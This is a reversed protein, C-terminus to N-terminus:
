KNLARFWNLLVPVESVTVFGSLTERDLLTPVLIQKGAFKEARGQAITLGREKDFTDGHGCRSVGFFVFDGERFTFLVSNRNNNKNRGYRIMSTKQNESM